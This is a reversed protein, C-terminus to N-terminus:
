LIEWEERSIGAEALIKLLLVRGIDGKHPNPLTLRHSGKIMFQHKGGSIPGEFGLKKLHSILDARKIPRIPPM